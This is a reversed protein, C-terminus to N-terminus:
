VNPTADYNTIIGWGVVIGKVISQMSHEKVRSILGAFNIKKNYLYNKLEKQKYRKNVDGPEFIAM